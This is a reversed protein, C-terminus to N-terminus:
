NLIARLMRTYNGDLKKEPRKTLTWTTCGYLMISVIAAQFFSREERGYKEFESYRSANRLRHLYKIIPEDIEQKMSMFKMREAVVSRKKPRMNRGIIRSINEFTLNELNKPYAITTVKM